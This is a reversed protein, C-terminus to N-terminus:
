AAKPNALNVQTGALPSPTEWNAAVYRSGKNLFVYRGVEAVWAIPVLHEFARGDKVTTVILRWTGVASVTGIERGDAAVVSM